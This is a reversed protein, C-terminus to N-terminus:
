GMNELKQKRDFGSFRLDRRFWAHIMDPQETPTDYLYTRGRGRYFLPMIAKEGLAADPVGLDTNYSVHFGWSAHIARICARELENLSKQAETERLLLDGQRDRPYKGARRMISVVITYRETLVPDDGSRVEVGGEDLAVYLQGATDPPMGNLHVGCQEAALNLQSRLHDRVTELMQGMSM